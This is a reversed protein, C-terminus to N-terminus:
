WGASSPRALSRTIAPPDGAGQLKIARRTVPSSPANRFRYAALFVTIWVKAGSHDSISRGWGWRHIM